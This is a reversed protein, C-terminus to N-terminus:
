LHLRDASSCSGVIPAYFLRIPVLQVSYELQKRVTRVHVCIRARPPTCSMFPPNNIEEGQTPLPKWFNRRFYDAVVFFSSVRRCCLFCSLFCFLLFPSISHLVCCCCFCCCLFSIPTEKWPAICMRLHCKWASSAFFVFCFFSAAQEM